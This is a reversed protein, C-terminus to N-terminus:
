AEALLKQITSPYLEHELEHIRKEIQERNEFPTIEISRQAIIPGTDMGADVFHITIGVEAAGANFAQGIADKGPFQPLLSPHVNVIKSEYAQLLKPGILRMYGALFIWKIQHVQLQEIIEQEFLDKSSYAKPNFSFTPVGANKAREVVFANPRDTVLLALEAEIEGSRTAELITQFNSGNGSAFVAIKVKVTHNLKSV